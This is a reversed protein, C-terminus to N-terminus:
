SILSQFMHWTWPVYNTPCIQSYIQSLSLLTLNSGQANLISANSTENVWEINIYENGGKDCYKSHSTDTEGFSKLIYIILKTSSHLPSNSAPHKLNFNSIGVRILVPIRIQRLNALPDLCVSSPNGEYKAQTGKFFNWKVHLLIMLENIETVIETLEKYVKCLQETFNKLSNQIHGRQGQACKQPSSIWNQWAPLHQFWISRSLRNIYTFHSSIGSTIMM